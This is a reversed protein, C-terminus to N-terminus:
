SRLRKKRDTERETETERERERERDEGSKTETERVMVAALFSIFWEPSNFGIICVGHHPELGIKVFTKALQCVDSYYERWTWKKWMEGRKVCLADRTSFRMVTQKFVENITVPKISAPGSLTTQTHLM